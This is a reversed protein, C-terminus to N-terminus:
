LTLMTMMTTLLLLEGLSTIEEESLEIQKKDKLWTAVMSAQMKGAADFKAKKKQEEETLEM